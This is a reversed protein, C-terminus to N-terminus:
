FDINHLLYAVDNKFEVISRDNMINLDSSVGLESQHSGTIGGRGKIAVVVGGNSLHLSLRDNRGQSRVVGDGSSM